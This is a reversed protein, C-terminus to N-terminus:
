PTWRGQCMGAGHKSEDNYEAYLKYGRGAVGDLVSYSTTYPGKIARVLGTAQQGGQTRVRLYMDDNSSNGLNSSTVNIYATQEDDDKIEVASVGKVGKSLNFYFDGTTAYATIGVTVLSTCLLVGTVLKRISKNM